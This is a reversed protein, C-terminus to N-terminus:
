KFYAMMIQEDPLNWHEYCVRITEDEGRMPSLRIWKEGCTNKDCVVCPKGYNIAGDKVPDPKRRHGHIVPYIM